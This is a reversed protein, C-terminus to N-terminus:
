FLGSENSESLFKEDAKIFAEKDIVDGEGGRREYEALLFPVLEKECFEAAKSGSHGDYVGFIVGFAGTTVSYRDESRPNGDFQSVSYREVAGNRVFATKAKKNLTQQKTGIIKYFAVKLRM